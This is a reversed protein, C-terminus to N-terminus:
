SSLQQFHALVDWYMDGPVVYIAGANEVKSPQKKDPFQELAYDAVAQFVDGGVSEFQVDQKAGAKAPKNKELAAVVSRYFPRDLAPGFRLRTDEILRRAETRRIRFLRVIEAERLPRDGLAFRALFLLRYQRQEQANRPMPQVAIMQLMEALAATAIGVLKADLSADDTGLVRALEARSVEPMHALLNSLDIAITGAPLPTGPAPNM